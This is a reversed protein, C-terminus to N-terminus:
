FNYSRTYKGHDVNFPNYGSGVMVAWGTSSMAPLPNAYWGFPIFYRQNAYMVSTYQNTATYLYSELGFYMSAIDAQLSQVITSNYGGDAIMVELWNIAGFTWEGSFVQGSITADTYGVGCFKGGPCTWGARAKVTQWLNYAALPGFNSDVFRTGLISAVWTQCDVAFLPQGEQEWTLTQTKPDYTGGQRFYAGDAASGGSWSAALIKRLGTILQMIQPKYSAFQSQVAGSGNEILYYLAELGALTSAQNEISFTSGINQAEKNFGYWTNRPAYYIAGTSGVAMTQLAQLFPVGLVFVPHTVSIDAANWKHEIMAHQAPGLLQAWSNEGLVPKYDNWTWLQNLDPCRADVTGQIAWYDSIMRFFYANNISLTRGSDSAADGYCFGCVGASTPDTCQGWEMVGKCVADGRIDPFQVTKHAVLVNELYNKCVDAKGLLSMAMCWVSGDYINLGLATLLEESQFMYANMNAAPISQNKCQYIYYSKNYHHPREAEPVNAFYDPPEVAFSLPMGSKGTNTELFSLFQAPDHRLGPLRKATPKSRKAILRVDGADVLGMFLILAAGLLYCIFMKQLEKSNKKQLAAYKRLIFFYFFFAIFFYSFL